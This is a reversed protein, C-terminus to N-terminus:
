AKLISCAKPTANNTEWTKCIQIIAIAWFGDRSQVSDRLVCRTEEDYIFQHGWLSFMVNIASAANPPCEQPVFTQCFWKLSEQQNALQLCVQRYLPGHKLAVFEEIQKEFGQTRTIMSREPQRYDFFVEPVYAFEWGHELTTLWFDWDELMWVPMTADYGGNQEWVSRRYLASAHIYNWKLLRDRDFPGVKWRGVRTGFCDRM